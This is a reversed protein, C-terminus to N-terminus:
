DAEPVDDRGFCGAARELKARLTPRNPPLNTFGGGTSKAMRYIADLDSAKAARVVFSM